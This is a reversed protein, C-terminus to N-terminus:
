PSGLAIVTNWLAYGFSCIKRSSHEPLWDASGASVKESVSLHCELFRSIPEVRLQDLMAEMRQVALGAVLLHQGVGVRHPSGRVIVRGLNFYCSLREVLQLM